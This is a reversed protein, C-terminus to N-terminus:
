PKRSPATHVDVHRTVAYDPRRRRGCVGRLSWTVRSRETTLCPIPDDPVSLGFPWERPLGAALEGPGDLAARAEEVLAIKGKKRSVEERRVLEVRVEDLRLERLPTAALTGEIEDGPGFDTRDLRLELDCHGWTQLEPPEDVPEGAASLVRVSAKGHADRARPVALTATVKWRVKAIKGEATPAADPPVTLELTQEFPIGAGLTGPQALLRREVVRRDTSTTTRVNTGDRERYTHEHEYVLEVRAEQLDLERRPTARVTVRIAEGPLVSERDLEVQVDARAGFGLLGM